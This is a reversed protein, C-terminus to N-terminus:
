KNIDSHYGDKEEYFLENRMLEQVDHPWCNEAYRKAEAMLTEEEEFERWLVNIQHTSLLISKRIYLDNRMMFPSYDFLRGKRLMLRIEPNATM